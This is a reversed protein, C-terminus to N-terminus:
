TGEYITPRSSVGSLRSIHRMQFGRSDTDTGWAFARNASHRFANKIHPQVELLNWISINVLGGLMCDLYFMVSAHVAVFDNVTSYSYFAPARASTLEDGQTSITPPIPNSGRSM